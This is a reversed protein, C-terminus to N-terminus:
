EINQVQERIKEIESKMDVVMRTITIENCKSGITNTERNLEQTLFDLKRGVPENKCLIDRYQKTHSKLRVTEEDVATKDAFIAAETLIRSEDINTDALINQLKAYLRETYKQVRDMSTAEIEAVANELFDLRSFIDAKMREGEIARMSIFNQLAEKAVSQVDQWIQEEDQESKQMSFIDPFRALNGATIDNKLDFATSMQNLAALYEQALEMNVAIRTDSAGVSQVTLGLEVKGRSISESLLKKLKDDLFAFSRPMRSSYEFYRSNVSKIEVTIDRGTLIAEARGYGTMSLVM